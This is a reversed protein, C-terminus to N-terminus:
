LKGNRTFRWVVLAISAAAVHTVLYSFDWYGLVASAGVFSAVFLLYRVLMHIAPLFSKHDVGVKEGIDASVDTM